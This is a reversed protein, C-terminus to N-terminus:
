HRGRPPQIANPSAGPTKIPLTIQFRAGPGDHLRVSGQHAQVIRQVIALGLGAGGGDAGTVFPEFLTERVRDDVGPGTDSVDILWAFPGRSLEVQVVSEAPAHRVANSLLNDIAQRMGVPDVGHLASEPARLMLAIGRAEAMGRAADISERILVTLDVAQNDQPGHGLRSFDLLQSSLASLRDTEIRTTTLAERLAPVDRERRLTVDINAGICALPTRLEHAANALFRERTTNFADLQQSADAIQNRLRAIVDVHTDAPPRALFDGAGLRSMHDSLLILRRELRQAARSQLLALLIFTFLTALGTVMWYTALTAHVTDLSARLVLFRGDGATTPLALERMGDVSRHAPWANPTRQWHDPMWPHSSLMRSGDARYLATSAAWGRRTADPTLGAHLHPVADDVLSVLELSAQGRLGDDIRHLLQQNFFWGGVSLAVILCATPLLAGMLILRLRLSM